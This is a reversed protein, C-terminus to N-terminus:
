LDRIPDKGDWGVASDAVMKHVKTVPEWKQIIETMYGLQQCTDMYCFLMEGFRGDMAPICGQEAYHKIEAPYDETVICIHHFGETGAPITDRYASPGVNHQQVLEIQIAGAQAMAFSADVEVPRGRYRLDEMKGHRLVFFPGVGQMRIWRQMAEQLDEVVFAAQIFHNRRHAM